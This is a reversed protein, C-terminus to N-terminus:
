CDGRKRQREIQQVVDPTGELHATVDYKGPPVNQFEYKGDDDTETSRKLQLITVHVGHVPNNSDGLTVKGKLTSNSQPLGPARISWNTPMAAMSNLSGSTQAAQAFVGATLTQLGCILWAIITSSKKILM